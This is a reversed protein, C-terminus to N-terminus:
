GMGMMGMDQPAQLADNSSDDTILCDTTLMLGAISCAHELATRTVKKPDVVGCAILDTYEDTAVNYGVNGEAAKVKDVILAGERGANSALQKLPAEIARAVISMGTLEDENTAVGDFNCLAFARLLATGGGVVIGEEVAARTAALADDVRDKKERMEAETAAGVHIVAVGGALKALRNALKSINYDSTSEAIHNRLESARQEIAEKSGGGEIITTSGKDVVTKKATGLVELEITDLTLGKENNVVEGGTLTALDELFEKRRDGFEPAKVAVVKLNGRLKNVVLTSLADQDVDEAVILLPRGTKSVKELIPLLDKISSIKTGNILILPDDFTCNLEDTKNVFYPSLYGKDFQMGEVVSLTTEVGTAEEVTITGDNGVREMAGAVIDGITADWNASVTAVQAVEKSNKVPAAIVGLQEVIAECAKLIGRQLYVPNAGATVNRLGERYIAEALVTATTTGDGAVDNTKTSVEKILQAGMNEYPDDLFIEKAVTVGDKTVSLGAGGRDIVVNRGSSGLTVKVAQALKEVGRLLSQRAQEDFQLQKAM